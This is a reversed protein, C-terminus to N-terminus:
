KNKKMKKREDERVKTVEGLWPLSAGIVISACTIVEVLILNNQLWFHVKQTKWYGWNVDKTILTIAWGICTLKDGLSM